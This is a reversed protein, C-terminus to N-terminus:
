LGGDDALITTTTTSTTTVVTNSQNIVFPQGAIVVTTQRPAGPNPAVTVVVSSPGTGAVPQITVWEVFRQTTWTCVPGTSLNVIANGGNIGLLASGASLNFGCSLPITTTVPTPPSTPPPAATALMTLQNFALPNGKCDKLTMGGRWQLSQANVTGSFERQATCEETVSSMKGTFTGNDLPGVLQGEIPGGSGSPTTFFGLVAFVPDPATQRLTLTLVNPLTPPVPGVSIYTRSLAFPITTTAVTTSTPPVTTSTTTTTTFPSPGTITVQAPGTVDKSECAVMAVALLVGTLLLKRM